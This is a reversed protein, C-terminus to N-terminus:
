KKVLKQTEIMIGDVYLQVMYIGPVLRNLGEVMINNIGKGASARKTIVPQGAINMLRIDAVGATTSNFRLVLDKTFPNPSVQMVVGAKTEMRVAIVNSYNVKGDLDVQKLRYYVVPKNKIAEANDKHQYSKNNDSTTFGDLVIAITTFDANTFSREVEFHSNNIESVTVWKLNIVKDAAIANFSLYKVPLPAAPPYTFNKFYISKQRSVTGNSNNEAGCKYIFCGVGANIVTFMVKRASTDIGDYENGAINRGTFASGSQTVNIEPSGVQYSSVGGGLDIVDIEKLSGNGDIDIATAFLSDQVNSINTGAAVFCVQFEVLGTKNAPVMIKPSFGEPKTISNDDFIDVSAGNSASVITVIADVNNSVNAFRYKANVQKANGSILTPTANFNYQFTQSSAQLAAFCVVLCAITYHTFISKMKEQTQPTQTLPLRLLENKFHITM